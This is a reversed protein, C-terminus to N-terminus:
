EMQTWSINNFHMLPMDVQVHFGEEIKTVHRLEVTDNSRRVGSLDNHVGVVVISGLTMNLKELYKGGSGEATVHGRGKGDVVASFSLFAVFDDGSMAVLDKGDDIYLFGSSVRVDGVARAEKHDFVIVLSLPTTRVERLTMRGQQMPVICGGRVYVPIHGLPADVELETGNETTVVHTFNELNWWSGSPFYVDVSRGGEEVVPAVMLATGLYFQRDVGVAKKDAPHLFFLPRAIPSGLYHAEYTLSYLYPLLRYRMLIANRAADAVSAWRYPESPPNWKENHVRSFPYFAGVSVWRNCLEETTTGQFGSCWIMLESDVLKILVDNM